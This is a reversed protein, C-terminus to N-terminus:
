RTSFEPPWEMTSPDIIEVDVSTVIAM